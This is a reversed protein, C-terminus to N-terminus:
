WRSDLVGNSLVFVLSRSARVNDMLDGLETVCQRDLFVSLGQSFIYIIFEQILSMLQYLFDCVHATLQYYLLLCFDGADTQM